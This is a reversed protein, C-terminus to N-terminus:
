GQRVKAARAAEQGNGQENRCEGGESRHAHLDSDRAPDVTAFLFSRSQWLTGKGSVIRRRTGVMAEVQYASYDRSGAGPLCFVVTDTVTELAELWAHQELVPVTMIKQWKAVNIDDRAGGEIASLRVVKMNENLPLKAQGTNRLTVTACLYRSKKGEISSMVQLEARRAFTRGRVYNFYVWLGGVVVAVSTVIDNAAGAATSLDM